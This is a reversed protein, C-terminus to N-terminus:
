LKGAVVLAKTQNFIVGTGMEFAEFYGVYIGIPAKTSNDTIGDWTFSGESALLENKLVTRIARGEDDFITFTGIMGPMAMKYHIHLLDEFGDNDPSITKSSLEFVGTSNSSYCESNKGGPTAFGISEAATHWNDADNSKGKPDIRELSKGKTDNVLKFQWDKTYSVKDMVQNNFLLYVTSSDINYSPLDAEIFTGTKCFPYHQKLFISDKSVTVYSNPHLLYHENITKPNSITDNYFNAFSWNNLDILKNSTNYIEVFDSGGTLPDYLIENIILDGNGAIEPMAFIGHIQAQNGSCDKATELTVSYDQSGAFHENFTLNMQDLYPLTYSVNQVTLDPQVTLSALSLSTTDMGESFQIQISNSDNTVVSLIAPVLTDPSNDMVSNETEPTGGTSSTSASWNKPSSCPLLLNIRELSYGGNKKVNDGYWNDTYILEDILTGNGDKLHIEDGANNLSPFSTVGVASPYSTLSSTSSLIIYEGPSLWKQQITGFGSADGIKWDQLNFYHSSRNYIEIFEVEPLGVAPSPDAMFESIVVDGKTPTENVMYTFGITQIGSVNNHLDAIANTTVSYNMGNIMNSNLSLHVLASNSIDISVSSITTMPLISYHNIVNASNADLGENFLVDIQNGYVANASILIPPDIDIVEDGIYFNDFYFKSGDSSTYTCLIGFYSGILSSNDFGSAGTTFNTGGSPDVYINWNGSADRTVKVGVAFSSAIQGSIGSCILTSTGSQQKFLRVADQSGTEGFLLYYGDPNITLDSNNATLYVKSFNNSSPAFPMKIWFRWEKANLDSLNHTTVLTSTSALSANTQLQFSSNVTFDSITGTWTPSNTFNGDGFDDTIQALSQFSFLIFLTILLHNM